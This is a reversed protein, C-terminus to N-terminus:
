KKCGVSVGGNYKKRETASQFITKELSGSISILEGKTINVKTIYSWIKITEEFSDEDNIFNDWIGTLGRIFIDGCDNGLM